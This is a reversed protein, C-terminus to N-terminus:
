KQCDSWQCNDPLIMVPDAYRPDPIQGVVNISLEISLDNDFETVNISLVISLDNDYETIPDSPSVNGM